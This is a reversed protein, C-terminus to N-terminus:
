QIDNAIASMTEPRKETWKEMIEETTKETTEETTKETGSEISSAHDIQVSAPLHNSLSTMSFM